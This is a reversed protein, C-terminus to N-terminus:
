FYYSIKCWCKTEYLMMPIVAIQYYFFNM